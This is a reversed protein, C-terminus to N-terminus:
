KGINEALFAEVTKLMQVRTATHLLYHDDGEMKVFQVKKGARELAAQEEESQELYVTVDKDSHMLLIPAKVRDAHLAPSQAGLKDSDSISAGMRKEWIALAQSYEGYDDRTRNLSRQLDSLGAFSAACAYIDPTFTAAALAAYGGYSWGFICVRKPDAIGDKILQTTGGNIDDLVGTAWQGDGANRFKAGYGYSGRFNSQLVAYGRSAFFQALWDFRIEDRDAPGGHPLIITPLNKPAKGPPLTLYAHIDTGDKSKYTYAREEGLDAATLSPYASGVVSLQGTQPTFLYFTRPNKPAEAAIVYNQGAQDWSVVEVSQGPLAHEIREKIHEIKPDFYKYQVRDDVWSVGSLRGTWDDKYLGSIDYQPNQFYPAGLTASGFQYNFLSRKDGQGYSVAMLSTGDQGIGAIDLRDGGRANYKAVERMGVYYHDMLDSTRDIRGVVHGRGDTIFRITEPMGRVIIDSEGTSVSVKFFNLFYTDNVWKESHFPTGENGLSQFNKVNGGGMQMNSEYAVMYVHDPDAPDMDAIAATDTTGTSDAYFPADHMLVVAPGGDMAVSIARVWVDIRGTSQRKINAKFTCILRNNNAWQIGIAEADPFAARMPKADPADLTFVTVGDRGDVVGIVALHKGDPSITASTVSPLSGFIEAPPAASAGHAFFFLSAAVFGAGLARVSVTV